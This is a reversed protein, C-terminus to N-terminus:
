KWSIYFLPFQSFFSDKGKKKVSSKEEREGRKREEGKTESQGGGGM